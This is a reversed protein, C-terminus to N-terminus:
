FILFNFLLGKFVVYVDIKCCILQHKEQNYLCTKTFKLYLDLLFIYQYFSLGIVLSM